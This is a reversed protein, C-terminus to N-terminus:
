LLFVCILIFFVHQNLDQKLVCTSYFDHKLIFLLNWGLVRTVCFSDQKLVRTSDFRFFFYARKPRCARRRLCLFLSLRPFLFIFQRFIQSKNLTSSKKRIGKGKQNFAHRTQQNINYLDRELEGGGNINKQRKSLEDWLKATLPSKWQIRFTLYTQYQCCM